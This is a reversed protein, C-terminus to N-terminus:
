GRCAPEEHDRLGRRGALRLRDDGDRTVVVGDMAAIKRAAEAWSGTKDGGYDRAIRQRARDAAVAVRIMQPHRPPRRMPRPRSQRSGAARATVWTLDAVHDILLAMLESEDSWVEGLRRAAPPLREILVYLRRMSVKPDLTDIGYAALM